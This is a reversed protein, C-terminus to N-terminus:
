VLSLSAFSIVNHFDNLFLIGSEDASCARKISRPMRLAEFILAASPKYKQNFDIEKNIKRESALASFSSSL